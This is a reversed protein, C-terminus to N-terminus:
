SLLLEIYHHPCSIQCEGCGNCASLNLQLKHHITDFSIAKTSCANECFPCNSGKQRICLHSVHPIFGTHFAQTPSLAGTACAQTCQACMDCASFDINIQAKNQQVSILGYPCVTICDGCGTCRQVFLPEPLAQPPRAAARRYVDQQAQRQAKQGGSFLGRLLGRRSIYNHQMFAQYYREDKGSM